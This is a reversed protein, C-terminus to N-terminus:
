RMVYFCTRLKRLSDSYAKFNSILYKFGGEFVPSIDTLRVFLTNYGWVTNVIQSMLFSNFDAYSKAKSYALEVQQWFEEFNSLLNSKNSRSTTVYLASSHAIWSTIQKRWYELITRKPISVTSAM